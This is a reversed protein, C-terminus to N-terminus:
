LRKVSDMRLIPDQHFVVSGSAPSSITSFVDGFGWGSEAREPYIIFWCGILLQPRPGFVFCKSSDMPRAISYIKPAHLQYTSIQITFYEVGVIFRRSKESTVLGNNRDSFSSLVILFPLRYGFQYAQIM